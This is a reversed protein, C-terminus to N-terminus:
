DFLFPWKASMSLILNCIESAECGLSSRILNQVFEIVEKRRCDSVVTPRVCSIIENSVIEAQEWYDSSLNSDCRTLNTGGNPSWEKLDGM